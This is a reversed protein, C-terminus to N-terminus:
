GEAKETQRVLQSAKEQQQATRLLYEGLNRTAGAALIVRVEPEFNTPGPQDGVTADIQVGFDLILETQTARINVVNAYVTPPKPVEQDM